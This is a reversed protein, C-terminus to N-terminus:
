FVIEPFTEIRSIRKPTTIAELAKVYEIYTVMIYLPHDEEPARYNIAQYQKYGEVLFLKTTKSSARNEGRKKRNKILWEEFNPSEKQTQKPSEFPLALHNSEPSIIKAPLTPIEVRKSHV